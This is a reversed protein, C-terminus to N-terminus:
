QLSSMIPDIGDVRPDREGSRRAPRARRSARRWGRRTGRFSRSAAKIWDAYSRPMVRDQEGWLMCRRRRRDDAAAEAAAYQRAALLHARGGGLRAGARDAMGRSNAGPPVTKLEKYKTRMPAHAPRRHQRGKAGLHRDASGEDDYLGFPATLAIRRCRCPGCRRWRPWSRAAWRAAPWIPATSGPSRLLQRVALLWDLHNDLLTHGTAGPFGPLSPVVVERKEALRDLFPMWRPLGGFGRSLRDEAAAVRRGSAAPMGTSTSRRPGAARELSM